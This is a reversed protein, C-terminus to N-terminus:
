YVKVVESPRITKSTMNLPFNRNNKLTKLRGIQYLETGFFM